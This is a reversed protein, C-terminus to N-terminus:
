LDNKTDLGARVDRRAFLKILTGTVALRHADSASM